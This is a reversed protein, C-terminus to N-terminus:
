RIEFNEDTLRSYYGRRFFKAVASTNQEDSIKEKRKQLSAQEEELGAKEEALKKMITESISPELEIREKLKARIKNLM